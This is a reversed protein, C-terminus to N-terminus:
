EDVIEGEEFTHEIDILESDPDYIKGYLESLYIATNMYESIIDSQSSEGAVQATAAKCICENLSLILDSYLQQRDTSHDFMMTIFSAMEDKTSFLFIQPGIAVVFRSYEM